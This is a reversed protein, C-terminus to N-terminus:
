LVNFYSASDTQRRLTHPKKELRSGKFAAHRALESALKLLRCFLRRMVVTTESIRPLNTPIWAAGTAHVNNDGCLPFHKSTKLAGCLPGSSPLGGVSTTMCVKRPQGRSLSDRSRKFPYLTLGSAHLPRFRQGRVTRWLATVIRSRLSYMDEAVSPSVAAGRGVIRADEALPRATTGGFDGFCCNAFGVSSHGGDISRCGVSFDLCVERFLCAERHGEGGRGAGGGGSFAVARVCMFLCARGVCAYKLLNRRIVIERAGSGHQLVCNGTKGATM